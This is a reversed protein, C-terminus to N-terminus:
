FFSVFAGIHFFVLMVVIIVLKNLHEERGGETEVAEDELAPM